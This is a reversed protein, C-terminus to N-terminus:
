SAWPWRSRPDHAEGMYGAADSLCRCAVTDVSLERRALLALDSMSPSERRRTGPTNSATRRGDPISPTSCTMWARILGTLRRVAGLRVRPHLAQLCSRGQTPYSFILSQVSPVIEAVSRPFTSKQPRRQRAKENGWCAARPQRVLPPSPEHAEPPFQSPRDAGRECRPVPGGAEADQEQECCYCACHEQGDIPLDLVLVCKSFVRGLTRPRGSPPHAGM